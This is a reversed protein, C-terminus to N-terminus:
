DVLSIERPAGPSNDHHGRTYTYTAFFMEDFSQDGWGIERSPDPNAPNLMSNDWAAHVTLISGAPVQKPTKLRYNRQWNFNYHPVSLLVEETKDPYQLVYKMAKGRLHMHPNMGYITIDSDIKESKSWQFNRNHPPIKFDSDVLLGTHLERAPPEPLVYLGLRSNDVEETGCATYHLEFHLREGKKVLMGSGVPFKEPGMGPAYGALSKHRKWKGNKFKESYAIIHHLVKTNGPKIDVAGIWTDEDFPFDISLYRYDIIGEAPVNQEPISVVYHPAGLKWEPIEQRYSNLPDVEKEGLEAGARVWEILTQKEKISLGFDNTFDGIHPDAQWPPMRRSMVVEEIMDAWGRIKRHSTMAFPGIGGKTHCTICKAKLIPAVDNTFSPPNKALKKHAPYSIRCGKAPVSTLKIENGSILSDVADMVYHQTAQAKESEYSLRNDIPGRYVIHFNKTDVLIFEATRKLGLMKGVLQDEDILVPVPFKFEEAEAAIEDRSDQFNSNIMVLKIRKEELQKKLRTLQPVRKRVMPCGNGQVFFGIAQTEPDKEHYYLRFFDGKQDFLGFDLVEQPSEERATANELGSTSALIALAMFAWSLKMIKVM